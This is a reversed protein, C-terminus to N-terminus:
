PGKGWDFLGFRELLGDLADRFAAADPGVNDRNARLIERWMAPGSAGVRLLEGGLIGTLDKAVPGFRRAHGAYAWAILQPLHSTFAVIRDHEDAAIAVPVGGLAAIFTEARASLEADESPVYAWSRGEFLEARAADPGSRESGAIPHTAVFHRLARAANCVPVKVSAIDVILGARVAANGRLRSIERLTADLHAAIVITDARADIDERPVAEDLAGREVARELAAADSDYGIAYGGAQRWCLAASAGIVGTGIVGLLGDATM